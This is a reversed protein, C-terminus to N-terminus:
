ASAVRKKYPGRTSAVPAAADVLSVIDEVRGCSTRSAQRWPPLCAFPSTSSSHAFTPSPMFPYPPTDHPHEVGGSRWQLLSVGAGVTVNELEGLWSSKGVRQGLNQAVARSRQQRLGDLCFHRSQEAAMGVLLGVVAALPQHAVSMQGLTLDHGADTRHRHAARAHAITNAFARLADAKRRRNQRGVGAPRFAELPQDRDEVELTDGGTVELLRQDCQEALVGAPERGRGDSPELLGPRLLM